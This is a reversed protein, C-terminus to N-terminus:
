DDGDTGGTDSCGDCQVRAPPVQVSEFDLYSVKAEWTKSHGCALTLEIEVTRYTQSEHRASVRYPGPPYTAFLVRSMKFTDGREPRM